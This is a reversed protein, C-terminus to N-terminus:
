PIQAERFISRLYDKYDPNRMRAPDYVAYFDTTQPLPISLFNSDQLEPSWGTGITYCSDGKLFLLITQPNSDPFIEGPYSSLVDPLISLLDACLSRSFYNPLFLASEWMREAGKTESLQKSAIVYYPVPTDTLRIRVLSKGKPVNEEPCILIKGDSIVQGISAADTFEMNMPFGKNQLVYESSRRMFFSPLTTGHLFVFSVMQKKQAEQIRLITDEYKKKCNKLMEYYLTGNETLSVARKNVRDILPFGLENELARIHSTVAPQSIYLTESAKTFSLTEAVQLFCELDHLTM